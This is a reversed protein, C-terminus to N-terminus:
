IVTRLVTRALPRRMTVSSIGATREAAKPMQTLTPDRSSLKFTAPAECKRSCRRNLPVFRRLASSIEDEISATPPSIFAKVEFSYM